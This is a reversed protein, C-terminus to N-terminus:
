SNGTNRLYPDIPICTFDPGFKSGPCLADECQTWDSDADRLCDWPDGQFSGPECGCRREAEADGGETAVCDACPHACAAGDDAALCFADDVLSGCSRDAWCAHEGDFTPWVCSGDQPCM